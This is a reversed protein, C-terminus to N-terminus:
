KVCVEEKIIEYKADGIGSVNKLDEVSNFKGNEERYKIIKLATSPGIGTVTELETQSATNINVLEKNKGITGM